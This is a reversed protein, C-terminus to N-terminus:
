PEHQIRMTGSFINPSESLEGVTGEDVEMLAPRPALVRPGVSMILVKIFSCLDQVYVFVGVCVCFCMLIWEYYYLISYPVQKVASRSDELM